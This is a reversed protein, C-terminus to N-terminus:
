LYLRDVLYRVHRDVYRRDTYRQLTISILPSAAARSLSALSAAARPLRLRASAATAAVPDRSQGPRYHTFVGQEPEVVVDRVGNALYVPPLEKYDKAEYNPSVIEIVAAPVTACAKRQRPIPECFIAIDPRVLSHDPL